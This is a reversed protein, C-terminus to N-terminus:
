TERTGGEEEEEEESAAGGGGGLVPFVGRSEGRSGASTRCAALEGTLVRSAPSSVRVSV